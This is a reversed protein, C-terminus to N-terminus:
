WRYRLQARISDLENNSFNNEHNFVWELSTIFHPNPQFRVGMKYLNQHNNLTEEKTKLHQWQYYVFWTEDQTVWNLELLLDRNKQSNREGLAFESLLGFTYWYYQMDIAYRKRKISNLEANYGSIGYSFFNGNKFGVRGAAVHNSNDLRLDVGSGTGLFFEWQHEKQISEVGVGWDAKLGLNRGHNYDLIRGNTNVFHELGFPIEIHGIKFDLPTEWQTNFTYTCIRCMLKWDSDDEYFPPHPNLNDIRNLYIQLLINGSDAGDNSFVKHYDLGISHIFAIDSDVNNHTLRGSLDVALRHNELLGIDLLKNNEWNAAVGSSFFSFLVFFITKLDM